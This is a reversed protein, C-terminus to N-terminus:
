IWFSRRLLSRSLLAYESMPLDREFNHGRRLIAVLDIDNPAPTATVFSGDIILFEFLKSRQMAGFFEELLAFLQPRRDTQQFNGFQARIEQLTCDFIGEPLLGNENLPPIPM